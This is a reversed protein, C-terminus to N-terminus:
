KTKTVTGNELSILYERYWRVGDIRLTAPLDTTQIAHYIYMMDRKEDYGVYPTDPIESETDAFAIPGWYPEEMGGTFFVYLNAVNEAQAIFVEDVYPQTDENETLKISQTHVEQQSTVIFDLAELDDVTQGPTEMVGCIVKVHLEEPINNPLFHFIFTMKYASGIPEGSGQMPSGVRQGDADYLAVDCYAGLAKSGDQLAEEIEYDGLVDEYVTVGPDNPTMTIPVILLYGDFYVDDATFTIGSTEIGTKHVDLSFLTMAALATITALILLIMLVFAASLKKKVNGEGRTQALIKSQLSQHENIDAFYEDISHRIRNTDSAM